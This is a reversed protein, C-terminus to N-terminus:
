PWSIILVPHLTCQVSYVTCPATTLTCRLNNITFQLTHPVCIVIIAPIGTQNCGGQASLSSLQSQHAKASVNSSQNSSTELLVSNEVSGGYKVPGINSQQSRLCTSCIRYCTICLSYWIHLYIQSYEECIINMNSNATLYKGISNLKM